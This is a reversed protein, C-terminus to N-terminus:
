FPVEVEDTMRGWDQMLEMYRKGNPKFIRTMDVIEELSAREDDNLSEWCEWIALARGMRAVRLSHAELKAIKMNWRLADLLDNNRKYRSHDVPHKTLWDQGNFIRKTLIGRQRDNADMRAVIVQYETHAEKLLGIIDANPYRRRSVKSATFSLAM